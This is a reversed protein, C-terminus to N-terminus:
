VRHILRMAEMDELYGSYKSQVYASGALESSEKYEEILDDIAKTYYM